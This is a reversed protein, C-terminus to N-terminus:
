EEVYVRKVRQSIGTLIEYPITGCSKAVEQVSIHQGFIEAEDGEQINHLDTIDIMTMDMCVSGIVPAINGDIYVKGIGNGLRRSFGDAYGIRITAIISDRTVKGRRNYGLTDGAKVTRIQAITTKLTTVTQLSLQHEKASEIGYMGIGLRVMDYQLATNRFIAASNSLHRIFNYGLVQQLQTCCREFITAQQQTFADEAPDESAALHSFVSQVVIHQNSQLLQILAPLDHEEFGLRHMGTDLKIHVPYQQLGHKALFANFAKLINFSFLEPELQQQVITEFANLANRALCPNCCYSRFLM